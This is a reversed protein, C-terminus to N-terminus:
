FASSLADAASFSVGGTSPRVQGGVHLSESRIEELDGAVGLLDPLGRRVGSGVRRLSNTAVDWGCSDREQRCVGTVIM